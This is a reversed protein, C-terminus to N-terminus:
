RYKDVITTITHYQCQWKAMYINTGPDPLDGDASLTLRKKSFPQSSAPEAATMPHHTTKCLDKLYGNFDHFHTFSHKFVM